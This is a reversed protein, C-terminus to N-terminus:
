RGSRNQEALSVHRNHEALTRSFYHEGSGDGKSNFYFYDTEEPFLAALLSQEGPAAIPGPPLGPYLYTNYPSELALDGYTLDEKVEGLIYQITACSQLPYNHHLRNHFVAAIREREGDVVAEREVISALTLLQHVTLGLAAAREGRDRDFVTEFRHLMLTAIEEAGAGRVVEYTDPFLYGELPYRVAPNDVAERLFPFRELLTASPAACLELFRAGDALGDRQLFAATQEATSGEPIVFWITDRYVAGEAIAEMIERMGMAPNLRYAGAMFGKDLGAWQAYLRFFLASRIIGNEELLRAIEGTSAGLPIEVLVEEATAGANVPLLLTNFSIVVAVALIALVATVSGSLILGKRM